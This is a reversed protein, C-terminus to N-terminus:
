EEYQPVINTQRTAMAVEPSSSEEDVIPTINSDNNNLTITDLAGDKNHYAKNNDRKKLYCTIGIIIAILSLSAVVILIIGILGPSSDGSSEEDAEFGSATQLDDFSTSMSGTEGQAYSTIVPDSATITQTNDGDSATVRFSLPLEYPRNGQDFVYCGSWQQYQTSEIWDNNGSSDKMEVKTVTISSPINILKATYYWPNSGECTEVEVPYTNMDVPSPTNNDSSGDDISSCTKDSTFVYYPTLNDILQSITITKENNFVIRVSVPLLQDFRINNKYLWAYRNGRGEEVYSQDADVWEGRKNIQVQDINESCDDINKLIFTFYYAQTSEANVVYIKDSSVRTTTTTPPKTTTTTTPAKTTTTTTTTTPAKTTTTTTPAKTTTTTTTTTPAKTTTTTTTTTPAKTSTTTSTTPAKTTTTTTPAETTTTTTPAQTTTTTTPAKTTTTSTTTTPAKSTTTTTPAQTTTTTTSTTPAKTTTTTTTPAKTTTTTTSTTPAKTTTTTTTTTPPNTTTTSTTSSTSIVGGEFAVCVRGNTSDYTITSPDPQLKDLQGLKGTEPTTWDDKLLGGTDGSNPNLCWFFTNRQDIQILYDVLDDLWNVMGGTYRTGFEGIAQAAQNSTTQGDHLYGWHAYWGAESYSNGTVDAGYVHPSWLLRNAGYNTNDFTVGQDKVGQLNEGWACNIVSCQWNTGEVVALWNVGTAWISDAVAEMDDIYAGWGNNSVDHPENFLDAAMINWEDKLLTTMTSWASIMDARSALGETYAGKALSHLDPMVLLGKLGAKQVVELYDNRNSQSEDIFAKSFPLRIANFGNDVMWDLYWDVTHKDTGYVYNNGTEFGFWSLGKLNFRNGNLKIEHDYSRWDLAHEDICITEATPYATTPATPNATTPSPTAPTPPLTGDCILETTAFKSGPTMDTIVGWLTIERATNLVIKLSIPLMQDFDVGTHDWAFRHANLDDEYYYQNNARWANNQYLQVSSISEGCMSAEINRFLVSLYYKSTASHNEVEIYEYSPTSTSSTSTSSTTSSTSGTNSTSSTSSTTSTSTSSTTTPVSIGGFNSGFDFEASGDLNTIVNNGTIQEGADNTLRVSLPLSLPFGGNCIWFSPGQSKDCTTDYSSSGSSKIEVNSVAGNGAIDDIHLGYWYASTGTKARIKINSTYDCSVREYTTEIVGCTGALGDGVIREMAKPNLDFHSTACEPCQDMCSVIVSPTSSDCSCGPNNGYPGICTIKYCKGCGYGDNFVDSGCAASYGFPFTAYELDNYGCANGNENGGYYTAKGTLSQANSLTVLLLASFPIRYM